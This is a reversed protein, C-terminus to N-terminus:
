TNKLTLHAIQPPCNIRVPLGTIGIGRSVFLLSKRNSGESGLPREFLGEVYPTLVRAISPSEPRPTLRVQGGHYHGSLVLDVGARAAEPFVEPRHSLLLRIEGASKGVDKLARGLDPKGENLDDIGLIDLTTNGIELSMGENRLVRINRAGFEDTLRDQIRPYFDHNGLCAFIGYRARLGALTEVCPALEDASFSVFDGTLAILDPQLRNTAEVYAALEEPPMFPGVHIDTLHVISLQSLASSLGNFPLELHDVEFRRRELFVGYGSVAFPAAAAFGLSKKLFQRRELSPNPPNKSFFFSLRRFLEYGAFYLALGTSGVAWFAVTARLTQQFPEYSTLGFFIRWALPYLMFLFVCGLPVSLFRRKRENKVWAVVCTKLRVYLFYQLGLYALLFLIYIARVSPFDM